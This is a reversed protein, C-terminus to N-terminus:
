KAVPVAAGKYTIAKLAAVDKTRVGSALPAYDLSESFDQGAGIAWNLFDVLTGAQERSKVNNLDKYVILYTFSAVPYAEDGPQNWIDAAIVNGTMKDVAGAGAVSVTKPSAKVFKGAKNKVSAYPIKNQDAYSQEIYGIAGASQQVIAAVGDNGKGGQGVPWKVSKGVGIAGKFDESQTALYNTWVFNTGSGDTRWAPTIVVDPLTVGSNLAKIKADSWKTIKGLYIDALIEGSFKLDNIGKLNYAPVVGGATSPIQVVNDAGGLAKLEDASLPADSGAFDVTKETIGKIGGGSGISQYDIKVTPHAKQYETVWKQYLPNPFTAGAGQLQVNQASVVSAGLALVLAATKKLLGFM